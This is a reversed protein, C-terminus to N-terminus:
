SRPSRTWRAISERPYAPESGTRSAAGSRTPSRTTAAARGVIAATPIPAATSVRHRGGHEVDLAEVVDVRVAGAGEVPRVQVDMTALPHRQKAGVARAFGGEDQVEVANEPAVRAGPAAGDLHGTHRDALVRERLDPAADPDDELVGVVLQEHRGDAVVHRETRGVEPQASGLQLSTDSFRERRHPHRCVGIPRWM